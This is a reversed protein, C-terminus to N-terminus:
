SSNDFTLKESKHQPELSKSIFSLFLIKFKPASLNFVIKKFIRKWDNRRNKGKGGIKLADIFRKQSAVRRMGSLTTFPIDKSSTNVISSPLSGGPNAKVRYSVRTHERDIYELVYSGRMEAMRIVGQKLPQKSENVSEMTITFRGIKFDMETKARLIVDRDDAPWPLRVVYYLILNNKDIKNIVQAESCDPIWDKFYAIDRLVEGIVEIRSNLVVIGKFENLDNGTAKKVFVQIGNENRVLKWEDIFNLDSCRSVSLISQVIFVLSFVILKM